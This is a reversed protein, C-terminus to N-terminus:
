WTDVQSRMGVMWCKTKEYVRNQVNWLMGM